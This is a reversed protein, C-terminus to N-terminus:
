KDPQRSRAALARFFSYGTALMGAAVLGLGSRMMGPSEDTLGYIAVVFGVALFGKGILRAIM